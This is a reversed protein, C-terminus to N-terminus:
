TEMAEDFEVRHRVVGRVGAMAAPVLVLVMFADDPVDPLHSALDHASAREFGFLPYYGPHGYVVVFPCGREHLAAIAREMLATGIGRRQCDPLVALPALCMGVAGTEVIAPSFLVYGVIRSGDVAVFSVLDPCSERLRDVIEAEVPRGFAATTLDRIAAADGAEEERISILNMM